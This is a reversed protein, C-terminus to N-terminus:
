WAAHQAVRQSSECRNDRKLAVAISFKPNDFNTQLDELRCYTIFDSCFFAGEIQLLARYSCSIKMTIFTVTQFQFVQEVEVQQLEIM